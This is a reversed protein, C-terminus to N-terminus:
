TLFRKLLHLSFYYSTRSLLVTPCIASVSSYRVRWGCRMRWSCKFLAQHQSLNFASPSPSSLPYSPQIANGVWHLHTQAFEPLQHHVPLGPTSCVMADCLTLCLQAVSSFQVSTDTFANESTILMQIPSWLFFIVRWMTPPYWEILHSSSDFYVTSSSHVQVRGEASVDM